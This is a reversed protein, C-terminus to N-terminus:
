FTQPKPSLVEPLELALGNSSWRLLRSASESGSAREHQDEAWIHPDMEPEAPHGTDQSFTGSPRGSKWPGRGLQLLPARAMDVFCPIHEAPGELSRLSLLNSPLATCVNTHTVLKPSQQLGSLAAQPWKVRSEIVLTRKPSLISEEFDDM